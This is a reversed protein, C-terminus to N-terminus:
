YYVNVVAPVFHNFPSFLHCFIKNYILHKLLIHCLLKFHLVLINNFESSWGNTELLDVISCSSAQFERLTPSNLCSSDSLLFEMKWCKIEIRDIRCSLSYPLQNRPRLDMVKTNHNMKVGGSGNHDLKPTPHLPTLISQLGKTRLDMFREPLDDPGVQLKLMLHSSRRM